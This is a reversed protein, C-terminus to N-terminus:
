KAGRHCQKCFTIGNDLDWLLDPNTLYIDSFKIKHHAELQGGRAKCDQCTYDDREFVDNRWSKYQQSNRIKFNLHTKGGQWNWHNIGSMDTRLKGKNWPIHGEKFLGQLKGEIYLKKFQESKKKIIEAKRKQKKRIYYEKDCRFCLCGQKHSPPNNGKKFETRPSSHQGKHALSLNIKHQQTFERTPIGGLLVFLSVTLVSLTQWKM